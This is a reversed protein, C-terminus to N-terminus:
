SFFSENYFFRFDQEYFNLGIKCASGYENIMKNIENNRFTKNVVLQHSIFQNLFRPVFVKIMCVGAICQEENLNNNEIYKYIMTQSYHKVSYLNACRGRIKFDEIILEKNNIDSYKVFGFNLIDSLNIDQMWFYDYIAQSFVWEKTEDDLFNFNSYDLEKLNFFRKMLGSFCQKKYFKNDLQSCFDQGANFGGYLLSEYGMLYYFHEYATYYKSPFGSFEKIQFTMGTLRIFLIVVFVTLILKMLDPWRKKIELIRGFLKNRLWRLLKISGISVIFTVMPFVLSVAKPLTKDDINLYTV